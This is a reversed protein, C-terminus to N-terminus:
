FVESAAPISPAAGPRGIAIGSATGAYRLAMPVPYGRLRAALFYGIFTDGAATTDVVTVDPAPESIREGGRAYVAGRSGLTLLVAMEPFKGTLTDLIEDPEEKGSLDAGEVENVVLLDIMELPFERAVEPTCPAPNCIVRHGTQKARRIIEPILNIENQVLLMTEPGMTEVARDIEEPTIERNSGPFLLISNQSADDVQIVARGSASGARSILSTDVGAERLTEELLAGDPGIKGAHVVRVGARALAISQNLGKGGPYTHSDRAALTEGPRVLHPVRFVQDLNLSGFNMIEAASSM